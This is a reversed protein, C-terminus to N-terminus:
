CNLKENLTHIGEKIRNRLTSEALGPPLEVVAQCHAVLKSINPQSKDKAKLKAADALALALIGITSMLNERERDGLLLDASAPSNPYTITEAQDVLKTMWDPITVGRLKMAWNILAIKPVPTDFPTDSDSLLGPCGPSWVKWDRVMQSFEQHAGWAKGPGIPEFNKHLFVFERVSWNPKNSWFDIRAPETFHIM